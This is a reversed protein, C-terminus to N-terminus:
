ATADFYQGRPIPTDVEATEAIEGLLHSQRSRLWNEALRTLRRAELLQSPTAEAAHAQLTSAVESAEPWLGAALADEMACLAKSFTSEPM